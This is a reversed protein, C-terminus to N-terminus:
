DLRATSFESPTSTGPYRSLRTVGASRVPGRVSRAMGPTFGARYAIHKAAWPLASVGINKAFDGGIGMFALVYGVACMGYAVWENADPRVKETILDAAVNVLPAGLDAAMNLRAM